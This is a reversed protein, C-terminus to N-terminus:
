PSEPPPENIFEVNHENRVIRADCTGHTFVRMIREALARRDSDLVEIEFGEGTMTIIKVALYRTTKLSAGVRKDDVISVERVERRAVVLSSDRATVIVLGDILREVPVAM